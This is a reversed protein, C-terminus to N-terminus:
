PRRPLFNRFNSERCQSFVCKRLTLNCFRENCFNRLIKIFCDLFFSFAIPIKLFLHDIKMKFAKLSCLTKCCCEDQIIGFLCVYIQNKFVLFLTTWHKWQIKTTKYSLMIVSVPDLMKGIETHNCFWCSLKPDKTRLWQSFHALSVFGVMLPNQTPWFNTIMFGNM